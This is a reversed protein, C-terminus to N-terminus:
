WGGTKSERALRMFSELSAKDEDTMSRFELPIYFLGDYATEKHNLVVAKITLERDIISPQFKIEILRGAPIHLTTRLLMGGASFDVTSGVQENEAFFKDTNEAGILRYYVLLTKSLRTYKRKEERNDDATAM